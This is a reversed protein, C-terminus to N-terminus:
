SLCTLIRPCLESGQHQGIRPHPTGGSAAGQWKGEERNRQGLDARGGLAGRARVAPRGRQERVSHLGHADAAVVPVGVPLGLHRRPGSCGLDSLFSLEGPRPGLDELNFM